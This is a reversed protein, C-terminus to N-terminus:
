ANKEAEQQQARPAQWDIRSNWLVYTLAVLLASLAITVTMAVNSPGLEPQFLVSPHMLKVAPITLMSMLLQLVSAGLSIPPMENEKGGWRMVIQLVDLDPRAVGARAVVASLCVIILAILVVFPVVLVTRVGIGEFWAAIGMLLLGAIARALGGWHPILVMSAALKVQTRRDTQLEAVPLRWINPVIVNALGSAAELAGFLGIFQWRTWEGLGGLATVTFFIGLLNLFSLLFVFFLGRFARGESGTAPQAKRPKM